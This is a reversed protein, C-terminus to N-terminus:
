TPTAPWSNLKQNRFTSKSWWEPPTKTWSPSKTSTTKMRIASLIRTLTSTIPYKQKKFSTWSNCLIKAKTPMSPWRRKWSSNPSCNSSERSCRIKVTNPGTFQSRHQISYRRKCRWQHYPAQQRCRPTVTGTTLIWFHIMVTRAGPTGDRGRRSNSHFKCKTKTKSKKRPPHKRTRSSCM